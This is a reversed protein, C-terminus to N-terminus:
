GNKRDYEVSVKQIDQHLESAKISANTQELSAPIKEIEYCLELSKVEINHLQEQTTM